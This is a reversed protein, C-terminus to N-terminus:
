ETVRSGPVIDETGDEYRVWCKFGDDYDRARLLL